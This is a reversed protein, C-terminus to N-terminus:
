VGLGSSAVTSRGDIVAGGMVGVIKTDQNMNYFDGMTADLGGGMRMTNPAKQFLQPTEFGDLFGLEIAPRNQTQPDVFVFWSNPAGTAIIPLYPDMVLDMNQTLWNTTQVFQAPQAAGANGGETTLYIGQSNKLNNATAVDGPGHVLKLRGTVLIPDGTSDKMGALIKLADSLGQASLRPNNSSAGNATNIINTYGSQYLTTNLGSTQAYFQTIFKSIGRSAKIGLRKAVDQFIGLDDNVLAAWNISAMSQYLLPSYTVAGTPTDKTAPTAGQQPAPGFLASQTPPAGPDSSTYPTVMDDLMYRKVIRFDRLTHVKCLQKNVIPYESYFGYYMRDLVDVFLAQYDTVAMTERLGMGRSNYLAPYKAALYNAFVEHKPNMAERIMRPDERGTLCDAYLRAAEMVRRKRAADANRRAPAFGDNALQAVVAQENSWGGEFQGQLNFDTPTM